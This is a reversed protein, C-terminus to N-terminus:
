CGSLIVWGADNRGWGLFTMVVLRYGLGLIDDCLWGTDWGVFDDFLWGEVEVAITMALM